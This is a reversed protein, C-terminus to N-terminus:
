ATNPLRAALVSGGLGIREYAQEAAVVRRRAQFWEWGLLRRAGRPAEQLRARHVHRPAAPEGGHV